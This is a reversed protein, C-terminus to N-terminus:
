TGHASRDERGRRVYRVGRKASHLSGYPGPAHGRPRGLGTPDLFAPLEEVDPLFPDFAEVLSLATEGRHGLLDTLEATPNVPQASLVAVEAFCTLRAQQLPVLQPGNESADALQDLPRTLCSAPGRSLRRSGLNPRSAPSRAPTRRIVASSSGGGSGMRGYGVSAHCLRQGGPWPSKRHARPGQYGLKAEQGVGKRVLCPQPDTTSAHTLNSRREGHFNVTPNGPDDPPRPPGDKRTFSKVSAWAEIRTGDVTFHEGSLL